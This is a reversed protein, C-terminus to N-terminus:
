FEVGTPTVNFDLVIYEATKTPQLFIQGVMQNRDIVDATNNTDDMVVRYSYLGQRQQISEMYPNVAALFRNRTATTNQEFLLTKGINGVTRKLEILLRRVNVRDLSTAKTQLTKQGFVVTGNGPFTALPNVKGLYLTDRDAPSLKREAQIVGGVGGRNFGAPAFWEAGIRDNTAYVGPIATSAPSWILKGTELSQMQVWPWYTAAYSSDLTQASTVTQNLTSGYDRTDVIAIADGRETVTDIATAVAVAGNQVTVGPM